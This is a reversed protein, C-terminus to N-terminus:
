KKIKDKSIFEGNSDWQEIIIETNYNLSGLM